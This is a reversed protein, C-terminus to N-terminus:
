RRVSAVSGVGASGLGASPPYDPPATTQVGRRSMFVLVGSLMQRCGARCVAWEWWGPAFAKWGGHDLLPPKGAAGLKPLNRTRAAATAPQFARGGTHTSTHHNPIDYSRRGPPAGRSSPPAVALLAAESVIIPEQCRKKGQATENVTIPEQFRKKKM